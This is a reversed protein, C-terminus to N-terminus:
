RSIEIVPLAAVPFQRETLEVSVTGNNITYSIIDEIGDCSFLLEAMRLYSVTSSQFAVGQLYAELVPQFITNVAEATYGDSLVVRAEVQIEMPEASAVIVDAGIPRTTEIHESIEEILIQPAPTNDNAIVVVDVTGAGRALPLVRVKEVGTVELTWKKYDAINGSTSPERIRELVRQRLSDDSEEDYGGVASNNNYVATIGVVNDLVRTVTGAAVNGDTGVNSCVARVTVVGGAPIDFDDLLFVTDDAAVRIGTYDGPRGSVTIMVEAYTAPNRTIGYDACASDLYTGVATQVFAQGLLPEIDMSYIRALENAVAQINDATWTGEIASQEGTLNKKIRRYIDSFTNSM